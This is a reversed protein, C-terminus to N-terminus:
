TVLTNVVICVHMSLTIPKGQVNLTASAVVSGWKNSVICTYTGNYDNQVNSFNLIDYNSQVAYPLPEDEGYRWKINIPATGQDVRCTFNTHGGITVTRTSPDIEASPEAIYHITVDVHDHSGSM